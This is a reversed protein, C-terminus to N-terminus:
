SVGALEAVAPVDQWERLRRLERTILVSGTDRAARVFCGGV